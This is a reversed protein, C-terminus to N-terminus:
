LQKYNMSPPKKPSKKRAEKRGPRVIEVTARAIKDFADIASSIAKHIFMKPASEKVMSLANTRNVKYNHKTTKEAEQEKRLQEDIPFALVATTTMIFVKAYFDQKVALSTKGSWAELQLRCKYLKYAEEINWRKEYLSVFENYSVQKQDM